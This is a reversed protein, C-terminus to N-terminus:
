IDFTYFLRFTESFFMFHLPDYLYNTPELSM